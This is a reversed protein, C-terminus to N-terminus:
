ENQKIHIEAKHSYLYEYLACRQDVGGCIRRSNSEVYQIYNTDSATVGNYNNPQEDFTM